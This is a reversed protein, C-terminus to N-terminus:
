QNLLVRLVFQDIRDGCIIVLLSMLVWLMLNIITPIDRTITGTPDQGGKHHYIIYLYRFIGYMVFPLTLLMARTGFVQCTRADVTYLAYCLITAGTVIAIVQDLFGISYDKLVARTDTLDNNATAILEFRRKTFGLFLSVMITCLVLWHSPILLIAVGGALIRLVFGAAITMVDLIAIHKVGLSYATNILVYILAIAAVSISVKWALLLGAAFIVIGSVLATSAKLAGSAVPRNKKVPHLRDQRLDCLDNILYIGSSIACFSVFALIASLCMAPDTFKASFLLPALVFGNKIWHQPRLAIM